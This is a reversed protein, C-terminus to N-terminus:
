LNKKKFWSLFYAKVLFSDNKVSSYVLTFFEFWNTELTPLPTGGKVGAYGADTNLQFRILPLSM